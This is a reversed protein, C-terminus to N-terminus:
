NLEYKFIRATGDDSSTLILNQKANYCLDLIESRHGTLTLSREGTLAEYVRISGDLCATILRDKVWIMKTVGGIKDDSNACQHRVMQRAIDWISVAGTLTGLFLCYRIFIFM